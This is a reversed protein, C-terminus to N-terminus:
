ATVSHKFDINKPINAINKRGNLEIDTRNLLMELKCGEALM